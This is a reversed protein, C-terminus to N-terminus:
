VCKISTNEPDNFFLLPLHQKSEMRGGLAEKQSLRQANQQWVCLCRGSLLSNLWQSARPKRYRLFDGFYFLILGYMFRMFFSAALLLFLHKSIYIKESSTPHPRWLHIQGFFM